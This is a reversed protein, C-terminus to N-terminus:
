ALDQDLGEVAADIKEPTVYTGAEIQARVRNVLDERVEPRDALRALVRAADSLELQDQGRSAPAIAPGSRDIRGAASYSAPSVNNLPAIDSM